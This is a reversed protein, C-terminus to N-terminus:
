ALRTRMLKAGAGFEEGQVAELLKAVREELKGIKGATTPFFICSGSGTVCPTERTARALATVLQGLRPEVRFAPVALDNFLRDAEVRGTEAARQWRSEVVAPKPGWQKEPGVLKRRARDLSDERQREALVEDFASYVPATPCGYGPVILLLEAPAAEVRQIEDGFGGILAAGAATKESAEPDMFFGVDSGLSLGLRLLDAHDVDLGLFRPVGLLVAAADASGGGLGGGVPIRKVVEVAVPLPQGVHAELARLARHALDKEVPWDIPSPRPADDAWRVAVSGPQGEPGKSLHVEDHLDICQMWSAIAHWGAKPSGAPEPAGVSLCLNVKAYARWIM